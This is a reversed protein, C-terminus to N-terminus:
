RLSLRFLTKSSNTIEANHEAQLSIFPSLFCIRWRSLTHENSHSSAFARCVVAPRYLPPSWDHKTRDVYLSPFLYWLSLSMTFVAFSRPVAKHSLTVFSQPAASSHSCMRRAARRRIVISCILKYAWLSLLPSPPPLPHLLFQLILSIKRGCVLNSPLFEGNICQFGLYGDTM